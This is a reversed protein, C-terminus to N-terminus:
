EVCLLHLVDQMMSETQYVCEEAKDGGQKRNRASYVRYKTVEGLSRGEKRFYAINGVGGRQVAEVCLKLPLILYVRGTYIGAGFVDSFNCEDDVGVATDRWRNRIKPPDGFIYVTLGGVAPLYTRISPKLTRSNGINKFLANRFQPLPMTNWTYHIAASNPLVWVLAAGPYYGEGVASKKAEEITGDQKLVDTDVRAVTILEAQLSWGKLSRVDKVVDIFAHEFQDPVNKVTGAMM